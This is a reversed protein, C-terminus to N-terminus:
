LWYKSARAHTCYSATQAGQKALSDALENGLIGCLAPTWLGGVTWGATLLEKITWLANLAYESDAPTVTALCTLASQNDACILIKTPPLGAAAIQRLGERM